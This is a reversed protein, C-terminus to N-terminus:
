RTKRDTWNLCQKEEMYWEIRTDKRDDTTRKLREM